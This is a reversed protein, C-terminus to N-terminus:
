GNKGGDKPQPWVPILCIIFRAFVRLNFEVIEQNTWLRDDAAWDKIMEEQKETLEWPTAPDSANLVKLAEGVANYVAQWEIGPKHVETLITIARAVPDIM